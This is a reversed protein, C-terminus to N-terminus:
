VGLAGLFLLLPSVAFVINLISIVIQLKVKYLVYSTASYIAVLISGSALAFGTILPNSGNNFAFGIAFLVFGVSGVSGLPEKKYHEISMLYGVIVSSIALIAVLSYIVYIDLLGLVVGTIVIIELSQIVKQKSATASLFLLVAGLLLISRQLISAFTVFYVSYILIIMAIIAVYFMGEDYKSEKKKM